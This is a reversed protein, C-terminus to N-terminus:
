LAIVRYFYPISGVTVSTDTVDVPGADGGPVTAVQTYTKNDTSRQVVYRINEAAGFTVKPNSGSVSVSVQPVYQTGAWVGLKDSLTWGRMWANDLVAGAFTANTNL